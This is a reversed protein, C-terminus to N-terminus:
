GVTRARGVTRETKVREVIRVRGVTRVKGVTRETREWGVTRVIIGVNESFYNLRNIFSYTM